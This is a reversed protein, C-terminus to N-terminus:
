ADPANTEGQGKDLKLALRKTAVLRRILGALMPACERSYSHNRLLDELELCLDLMSLIRRIDAERRSLEAGEIAETVDYKNLLMLCAAQIVKRPQAHEVALDALGAAQDVDVEPFAGRVYAIIEERTQAVEPARTVTRAEESRTEPKAQTEAPAVPQGVSPNESTPSGIFHLKAAAEDPALNNERAEDLLRAVQPQSLQYTDALELLQQQQDEPAKLLTMALHATVRNAELAARIAQPAKTLRRLDWVYSRTLGVRQAIEDPKLGHQTELRNVVRALEMPALNKRVNATLSILDCELTEAHVVVAKVTPHGIHQLAAIRRHGDLPLYRQEGTADSEALLVPLRQGDSRLSEVLARDEDDGDPDFAARVQVPSDGVIADLRVECYEDTAAPAHDALNAQAQRLAQMDIRVFPNPMRLKTEDGLHLEAAM